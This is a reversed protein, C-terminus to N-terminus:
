KNDKKKGKRGALFIFTLLAALYIIALGFVIWTMMESKPAMSILVLLPAGFAIAFSSGTILNNSAPTKMQPDIERLLLVGSSITGTLMGYMSFFGEYFYGKYLKKSLWMLFIFTVVGGAVAMVIFPVWYGKLDDINISAIGCIIMVDFLFGSIRSLLYNNQYQRNMLKVKRLGTFLTRCGAAVMSGIIFNFGWLMPSITAALGASIVALLETLGWTILYTVLYVICILAIQISLRDVSESIPVENKDEFTDVTVSGSVFNKQGSKTLKGKKNFINLFVVGVVCACIYGAAALSLGFSQGGTFGLNEYSSGVNNAQGPGQGYAMALLIGSSKFLDPMFTYAFFLSVALGVIAQVLYTSVILAGTRSGIMKETEITKEPVRLSMAIFGLAITHYTITELFVNDIVPVLNFYKLLLLIFGALVATPIMYKQIFKLKRRMINALLVLAAIIGIQIIPGWLDHNAASFDM